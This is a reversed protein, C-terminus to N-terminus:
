GPGDCPIGDTGCPVSNIGYDGALAPVSLVLLAAIVAMIALTRRM